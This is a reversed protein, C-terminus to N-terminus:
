QGRVKETNPSVLSVIYELCLQYDGTWQAFERYKHKDETWESKPNQSQLSLGRSYTAPTGCSQSVHLWETKWTHRWKQM